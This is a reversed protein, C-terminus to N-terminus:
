GNQDSGKLTITEQLHRAKPDWPPMGHIVRTTDLRNVPPIHWSSMMEGLYYPATSRDEQEGYVTMEIGAEFDLRFQGGVIPREEMSIRLQDMLNLLNLGGEQEDPDYVCFVTRVVAVSNLRQGETQGDRGVLVQHLIYPAKKWKDTKGNPLRALFVQAARPPPPGPDGKQQSVPLIIDCTVAETFKKLENLLIVHSM